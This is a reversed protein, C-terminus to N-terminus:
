VASKTAKEEVHVTVPKTEAEPAKELVPDIKGEADRPQRTWGTKFLPDMKFRPFPHAETNIM